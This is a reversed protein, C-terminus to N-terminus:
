EDKLKKLMENIKNEYPTDKCKSLAKNLYEKQKKYDKQLKKFFKSM